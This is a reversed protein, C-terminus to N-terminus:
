GGLTTVRAEVTDLMSRMSAIGPMQWSAVRTRAYDRRLSGLEISTYRGMKCDWTIKNVEVTVDLGLLPHRVRVQDYLFLKELDRYQKYEATDGLQLFDVRLTVTPLDCEEDTFKELAAQILKVYAANLAGSTTGTAKIESGKDLVGICPIPSTDGRPSTVLGNAVTIAMGGVTYTGDPITLPKGKVTQGVPLLRTIAESTDVSCDVGLLNVGYNIEYGRNLGGVDALVTSWNDRLLEGPWYSLFGSSPSLLVEIPSVRVMSQISRSGALNTSIYTKTPLPFTANIQAALAFVLNPPASSTDTNSYLGGLNDYFVHRAKVSIGKNSSAVSYIRFLQPRARDAHVYSEITEATPSAMSITEVTTLASALIWGSGASWVIKRYLLDAAVVFVEAGVPLTILRIGTEPCTRVARNAAAVNAITCRTMSTILAGLSGIEPLTRLPVDAKILNGPVLYKWKGAPDIPHEITIESTANKEENFPTKGVLLPGCLGLTDVADPWPEYVFLNPM